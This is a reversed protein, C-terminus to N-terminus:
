LLGLLKEIPPPPRLLCSIILVSCAQAHTHTHPPHTKGLPVVLAMSPVLSSRCKLAGVQLLGLFAVQVELAAGAFCVGHACNVGQHGSTTYGWWQRPRPPAASLRSKHGAGLPGQCRGRRGWSAAGSSVAGVWRAPLAWCPATWNGPWARSRTRTLSWSQLFSPPLDTEWCCEGVSLGQTAGPSWGQWPGAVALRVWREGQGSASCPHLVLRGLVVGRLVRSGGPCPM